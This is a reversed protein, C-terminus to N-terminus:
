SRASRAYAGAVTTAWTNEVVQPLAGVVYGIINM